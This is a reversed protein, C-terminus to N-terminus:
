LVVLPGQDEVGDHVRIQSYMIKFDREENPRNTQTKNKANSKTYQIQLILTRLQPMQTTFTSMLKKIKKKTGTTTRKIKMFLVHTSVNASICTSIQTRSVKLKDDCHNTFRMNIPQQSKCHIANFFLNCNSHPHKRKLNDDLQSFRKPQPSIRAGTNRLGKRNNTSAKQFGSM